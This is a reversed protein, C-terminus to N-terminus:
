KGRVYDFLFDLKETDTIHANCNAEDQCIYNSLAKYNHNKTDTKVDVTFLGVAGMHHCFHCIGNQPSPVFSGSLGKVSGELERVIFKKMSGKDYWSLYTLHLFDDPTLHPPHLKKAKKFLKKLQAETIPQFPICYPELSDKFHNFDAENKISVLPKLLELQPNKLSEFAKEAKNLSYYAFEQKVKMDNVRQEADLVHKAQRLIQNLVHNEIFAELM